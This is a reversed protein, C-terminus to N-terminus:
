AFLDDSAAASSEHTQGAPGSAARSALHVIISTEGHSEVKGYQIDQRQLLETTGLKLYGEEHVPLGYSSALSRHLPLM